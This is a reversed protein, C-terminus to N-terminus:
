RALYQGHVSVSQYTKVGFMPFEKKMANSIKSYQVNNDDRPADGLPFAYDLIGVCHMLIESIKEASYQPFVESYSIENCRDERPGFNRSIANYFYVHFIDDNEPLERAENIVRASDANCEKM